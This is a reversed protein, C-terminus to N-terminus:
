QFEINFSSM